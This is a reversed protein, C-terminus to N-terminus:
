SYTFYHLGIKKGLVLLLLLPCVADKLKESVQNIIPLTEELKNTITTPDADDM